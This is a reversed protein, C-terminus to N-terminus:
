NNKIKEQLDKQKNKIQNEEKKRLEKIEISIKRYIYIVITWSMIFSVGLLILIFKPKTNYINDFYSGIFFATFAPIAFIFAIKLMLRFIKNVIKERQLELNEEM